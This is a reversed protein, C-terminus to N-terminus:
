QLLNSHKYLTDLPINLHDLIEKDPQLFGRRILFDIAVPASTIKFKESCIVDPVSALPVLTWSGVEGDTNRPVFHDPLELDFVFETNPHIGRETRHLFSVSGAPVMKSAFESDIGAEEAAEKVATEKVGLGETIGGGVFNDMMGPWTPKHLSRQQFWLSTGLKKHRVFGNIQIGYKRVGMLPSAARELRFLTPDEFKNRIEYCENRWGMLANSFVGKIRLEMMIKNIALSRSSESNINDQFKVCDENIKIVSKFQQLHLLVCPSVFGVILNDCVFPLYGECKANEIDFNNLSKLRVLLKTRMLLTEMEVLINKVGSKGTDSSVMKSIQEADSDTDSNTEIVEPFESSKDFNNANWQPTKICTM